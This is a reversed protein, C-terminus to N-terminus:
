EKILGLPIRCRTIEAQTNEFTKIPSKPSTILRALAKKFNQADKDVDIYKICVIQGMNRTNNIAIAAKINGERDKVVRVDDHAEIKLGAHSLLEREKQMSELVKLTDDVIITGSQFEPKPIDEGYPDNPHRGLKVPDEASLGSHPFDSSYVHPNVNEEFLRGSGKTNEKYEKFFRVFQSTRYIPNLETSVQM